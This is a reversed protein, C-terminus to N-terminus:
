KKSPSDAAARRQADLSERQSEPIEPLISDWVKAADDDRDAAHLAIVLSSGLRWSRQDSAKWLSEIVKLGAAPDRVSDNTSTTQVRALWVGACTAEPRIKQVRELSAKAKASWIDKEANVRGVLFLALWDPEKSKGSISQAEQLLGTTKGRQEPIRLSLLARLAPGQAWAKPQRLTERTAFAEDVLQGAKQDDGLEFSCLAAFVLADPWLGDIERWADLSKQLREYDGLTYKRMPEAVDLWVRRSEQLDNWIERMRRDLEAIETNLNKLETAAQTGERQATALVGRAEDIQLQVPILQDRLQGILQPDRTNAIQRQLRQAEPLNRQLFTQATNAAATARTLRVKAVERQDLRPKLKEDLGAKEVYIERAKSQAMSLQASAAETEDRYGAMPTAGAAVAVAFDLSPLPVDDPDAPNEKDNSKSAATGGGKKSSGAAKRSKEQGVVGTSEGVALNLFVCLGLMARAVRRSGRPAFPAGSSFSRM